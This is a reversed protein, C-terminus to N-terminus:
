QTIGKEFATMDIGQGLALRTLAAACLVETMKASEPNGKNRNKIFTLIYDFLISTDSLGTVIKLAVPATEVAEMLHDLVGSAIMWKQELDHIQEPTPTSV